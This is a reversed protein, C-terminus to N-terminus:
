GDSTLARSVSVVSREYGLAEILNLAAESYAAVVDRMALHLERVRAIQEPPVSSARRQLEALAVRMWAAGSALPQQAGALTANALAAGVVGETVLWLAYNPDLWVRMVDQPPPELGVPESPEPSLAQHYDARHGPDRCVSCRYTRKKKM